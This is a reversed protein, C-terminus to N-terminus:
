HHFISKSAVPRELLDALQGVVEIEELSLNRTEIGFFLFVIAQVILLGVLLGVVAVLGAWAFLAVIVFQSLATALRGATSCVATGRMRFDTKFLEPVYLAFGVSLLLYIGAFLCLGTGMLVFSSTVLPFAIGLAATALSATVILPKRDVRDALLAGLGAGLPPGISMVLTWQLSSAISKGQQVFFIPLWNIFGWVSVGVVVNLLIGILTRALVPPKFLVSMSIRAPAIADSEPVYQTSPAAGLRALIAEAERYRGNAQLWRPSEPMSYRLMWVFVACVGVIAFMYRWGFTPLIWIGLATAAFLSSATIVALTAIMRGRHKAPVFETLMAYGVVIEAALGLGMAFRLCILVKMNPSFAAAISAIGFLMLNFQYAFKRGFRDGVIGAIWAGLTMGLFTATVFAANLGMTSWGSRTLSSLVGGSLSLEFGDLFLGAGILILMRRHFWSIPLADLRAGADRRTRGQTLM